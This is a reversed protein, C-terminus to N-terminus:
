GRTRAGNRACSRSSRAPRSTRRIAASGYAEDQRRWNRLTQERVGLSQAIERPTRGTRFMQVADGRFEPPYAPRTKPVM